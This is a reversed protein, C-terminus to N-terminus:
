PQLNFLAKQTQMDFPASWHEHIVQWQAGSRRYGVTVRMFGCQSDDDAPGCRNLWHALALNDDVHLTLQHIEFVMEGSCMCMCMEWHARYAAKGKFHLAQIADFAVVDEAYPAVIADIDRERVAQMWSDIQQRLLSETSTTM